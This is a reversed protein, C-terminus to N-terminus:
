HRTSTSVIPSPEAQARTDAHVAGGIALSLFMWAAALAVLIRNPGNSVSSRTTPQMPRTPMEHAQPKPQNTEGQRLGICALQWIRIATTCM